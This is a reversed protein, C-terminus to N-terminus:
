DQNFRPDQRMADLLWSKQEIFRYNGTEILRYIENFQIVSFDVLWLGGTYRDMDIDTKEEESFNDSLRPLIDAIVENMFYSNCGFVENNVTIM